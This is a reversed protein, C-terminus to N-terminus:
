AAEHPLSWPHLRRDSQTALPKAPLLMLQPTAPEALGAPTWTARLSVPGSLIRRPPRQSAAPPLPRDLLGWLSWQPTLRRRAPGQKDQGRGLNQTEAAGVPPREQSCM